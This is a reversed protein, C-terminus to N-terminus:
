QDKGALLSGVWWAFAVLCLGVFIGNAIEGAQVYIDPM